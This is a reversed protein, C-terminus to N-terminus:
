LHSIESVMEPQQAEELESNCIYISDYETKQSFFGPVLLSIGLSLVVMAALCSSLATRFPFAKITKEPSPIETVAFTDEVAHVFRTVAGGNKETLESPLGANGTKENAKMRLYGGLTYECNDNVVTFQNKLNNFLTDYSSIAM